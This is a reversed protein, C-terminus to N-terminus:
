SALFASAPSPRSPAPSASAAESRAADSPAIASPADPGPSMDLYWKSFPVCVHDDSPAGITPTALEVARANAPALESATVKLPAAPDGVIKTREGAVGTPAVTVNRM